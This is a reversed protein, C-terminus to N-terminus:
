IASINKAAVAISRNAQVKFIKRKKSPSGTLQAIFERSYGWQERVLDTPFLGSDLRARWNKPSKEKSPMKGSLLKEIGPIKSVRKLAETEPVGAKMLFDLAVAVSTRARHIASNLRKGHGLKKAKFVPHTVGADLDLLAVGVLALKDRVASGSGSKELAEEILGLTDVLRHRDAVATEEDNHSKLWILDLYHFFTKEPKKTSGAKSRNKQAADGTVKRLTDDAFAFAARCAPASGAKRATARAANSGIKVAL